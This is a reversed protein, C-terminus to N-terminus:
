WVEPRVGDAQRKDPGRLRGLLVGHQVRLAGCLRLLLVVRALLSALHLRCQLLLEVRSAQVRADGAPGSLAAAAVSVDELSTLELEVGLFDSCPLSGDEIQCEFICCCCFM